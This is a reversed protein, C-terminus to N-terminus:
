SSVAITIRVTVEQGARRFVRVRDACKKRIRGEKVFRREKREKREERPESDSSGVQGISSFGFEM